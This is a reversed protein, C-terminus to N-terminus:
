DFKKPILSLVACCIEEGTEEVDDSFYHLPRGLREVLLALIKASPIAKGSEIISIYARSLDDGALQSQSMGQRIRDNKIKLGIM